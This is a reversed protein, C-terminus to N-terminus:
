TLSGPVTLTVSFPGDKKEAHFKWKALARVVNDPLPAPSSSVPDHSEGNLAYPVGNSDIIM